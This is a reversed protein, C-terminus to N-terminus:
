CHIQTRNSMQGYLKNLRCQRFFTNVTTYAVLYGQRCKPYRQRTMAMEGTLQTYHKHSSRLCVHDNIKVLFVDAQVMLQQNMATQTHASLAVPSTGHCKCTLLADPSLKIYLCAVNRKKSILM